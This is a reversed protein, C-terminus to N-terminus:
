LTKLGNINHSCIVGHHIKKANNNYLNKQSNVRNLDVPNPGGGGRGGEGALVEFGNISYFKSVKYYITIVTVDDFQLTM